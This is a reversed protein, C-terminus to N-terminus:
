PNAKGNPIFQIAIPICSADVDVLIRSDGPLTYRITKAAKIGQRFVLYVSETVGEIECTLIEPVAESM